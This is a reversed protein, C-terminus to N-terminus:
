KSSGGYRDELRGLMESCSLVTSTGSVKLFTGAKEVRLQRRGDQLMLTRSTELVVLGSVGLKTPDTSAVITAKKGIVNM